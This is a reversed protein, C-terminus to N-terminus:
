TPEFECGSNNQVLSQQDEILGRTQEKTIGVKTKADEYLTCFAQIHEIDYKNGNHSNDELQVAIARKSVGHEALKAIRGVTLGVRITPTSAKDLGDVVTETIKNIM